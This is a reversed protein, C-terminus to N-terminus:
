KDRRRCQRTQNLKGYNEGNRPPVIKHNGIFASAELPRFNGPQPNAGLTAVVAVLSALGNWCHSLTPKLTHQGEPVLARSMTGPGDKGNPESPNLAIFLNREM